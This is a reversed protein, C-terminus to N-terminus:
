DDANGGGILARARRFDGYTLEAGNFGWIPRDNPKSGMDVSLEDALRAFPQLAERLEAMERNMAEAQRALALVERMAVPNCAAIYAAAAEQDPQNAIVGAIFFGDGVVNVQATAEDYGEVLWTVKNTVSEMAKAISDVPSSPSTM